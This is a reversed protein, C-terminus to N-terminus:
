MTASAAAAFTGCTGTLHWGRMRSSAPNAALSVRIMTEYGAPIAALLKEGSINEREGLALAAPIVVAGPHIKARSHDDFDFSHVATGAALAANMASIKRGGGGWISAEPPGAQEIAFGHIIKGWPTMLGYLGCGIADILAKIVIARTSAPIQDPQLEAVFKALERTVGQHASAVAKWEKIGIVTM